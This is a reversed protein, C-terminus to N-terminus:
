QCTELCEKLGRGGDM